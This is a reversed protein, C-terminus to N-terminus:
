FMITRQQPLNNYWDPYATIGLLLCSRFRLPKKCSLNIEHEHQMDMMTQLLSQGGDVKSSSGPQHGVRWRPCQGDQVSSLGLGCVCHRKYSGKLFLVQKEHALPLWVVLGSALPIPFYLGGRLLSLCSPCKLRESNDKRNVHLEQFPCVRLRFNAPSWM